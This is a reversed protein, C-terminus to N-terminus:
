STAARRFRWSMGDVDVRDAVGSPVLMDEEADALVGELVV